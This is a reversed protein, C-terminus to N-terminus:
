QRNQENIQGEIAGKLAIKDLEHAQKDQRELNKSLRENQREQRDEARQANAAQEIRQAEGRQQEAAQIRSEVVQGMRVRMANTIEDPTSRNYHNAFFVDDILQFQLFIQLMNNAQSQLVDDNNERKVFARFDENAMDKSLKIVEVGADGVAMALERENEIYYRKGVTAINQFIQKYFESLAFYFPEQMLSGRQILLQTVGVLQDSGTSEGKLSENVGSTDQIMGKMLPIINLLGYTGQGPTADYTSITNPIGRGKSRLGVPKGQSINRNMESEGDDADVSDIDYVLGRGGSNNIQSEFVSMTRNILRQPNIADDVPSLVEGNVYGWFFLKMPFQVESVDYYDTEQYDLMGWELAIDGIKNELDNSKSGKALVEGPVFRCYRVVDLYLFTKKNGKGFIRRNEPTNAPEILDSDTWKPEDEGEETHNIRVLYPYGFEDNVWGYEWREVDKWYVTYVPVRSEGVHHPNLYSDYGNLVDGGVTTYNEIAKRDDETLEQFEEFIETPISGKVFGRYEGDTADYKKARRDWFCDESEIIDYRQHGGYQYGIAAVAGSLALNEAAKPQLMVLDNKDRVYRVLLNMKEVYQDVYLNNHMRTTEDVTRGVDPNNDRIINGLGPFENAINTDFLREKLSEDRRNKAKPSISKVTFNMALRIANGRWQEVMPRIVNHIVKIRNRDQNTEDKLFAELDEDYHWQDGKYFKKNIRTKEVFEHHYNTGSHTVCWKAYDIHYQKNKKETLRNPKNVRENLFHFVSM